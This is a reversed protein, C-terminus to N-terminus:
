LQKLLALEFALYFLTWMFFMVKGSKAFFQSAHDLVCFELCKLSNRDDIRYICSEIGMWQYIMRNITAASENFEPIPAELVRGQFSGVPMSRERRVL